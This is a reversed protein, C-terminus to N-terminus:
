QIDLPTVSVVVVQSCVSQLFQIGGRAKASYPLLPHSRFPRYAPKTIEPPFEELIKYGMDGYTDTLLAAMNHAPTTLVALVTFLEFVRVAPALSSTCALPLTSCPLGLM